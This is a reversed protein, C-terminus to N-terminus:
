SLTSLISPCTEQWTGLSDSRATNSLTYLLPPNEEEAKFWQVTNQHNLICFFVSAFLGLSTLM